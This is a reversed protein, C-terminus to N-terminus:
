PLSIENRKAILLNILRMAEEPHQQYSAAIIEIKCIFNKADNLDTAQRRIAAIDASADSLASLQESMHSRELEATTLLSSLRANEAQLVTIREAKRKLEDMHGRFMDDDFTRM